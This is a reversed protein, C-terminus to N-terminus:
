DHWSLDIHLGTSKARKTWPPYASLLMGQRSYAIAGNGAAIHSCVAPDTRAGEENVM